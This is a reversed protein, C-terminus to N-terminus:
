SCDKSAKQLYPDPHIQTTLQGHPVAPQHSPLLDGASDSTECLVFWSLWMHSDTIQKCFTCKMPHSGAKSAENKWYKKDLYATKPCTSSKSCTNRTPHHNLLSPPWTYSPTYGFVLGIFWTKQSQSLMNFNNSKRKPFSTQLMHSKQSNKRRWPNFWWYLLLQAQGIHRGMCSWGSGECPTGQM